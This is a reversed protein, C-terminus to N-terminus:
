KFVERNFYYWFVFDLHALPINITDAFNKMNDEINLYKTKSLSGPVKDIVSCKALGRLIHRDLIAFEEGKGINRLFHSAEKWGMGKVNKVIDERLVWPGASRVIIDKLFSGNNFFRERAEVIYGAKNNNFRIGYLNKAIEDRDGSQLIGKNYLIEINEWCVRAKCQPTLLCFFFEKAIREETTNQSFEKLRQRIQLEINSHITKLTTIMEDM